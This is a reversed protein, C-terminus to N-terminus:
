WEAMSRWTLVISMMVFMFLLPVIHVSYTKVMEHIVTKLFIFDIKKDPSGGNERELSHRDPSQNSHRDDENDHGNEEGDQEWKSSGSHKEGTSSKRERESSKRNSDLSKSHDKDSSRSEKRDRRPSKSTKEKQRRSSKSKKTKQLIKFMKLLKNIQLMPGKQSLFALPVADNVKGYRQSNLFWLGNGFRLGQMKIHNKKSDMAITYIMHCGFTLMLNSDGIIRIYCFVANYRRRQSWVDSCDRSFHGKEGCTYCRMNPDFGRRRRGRTRPRAFSCRIRGGSLARGDMERIALEADERYKYVIFAFCPPNRAVWVEIIPGFKEFANELESKSPDIGLDAVHVRYGEEDPSPSRSDYSASRRN